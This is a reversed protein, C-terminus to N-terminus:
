PNHLALLTLIQEHAAAFDLKGIADDLAAYPASPMAAVERKLEAHAELARMNHEVLLRELQKLLELIREPNAPYAAAAPRPPDLREALDSLLRNSERLRERLAAILQEIEPRDAKDKIRTEAAAAQESLARAGLTAALGKLTHLERALSAHDQQQMAQDMRALMEQQDNQFRRAMQAYLGRDNGLRALAHATDFGAPLPPLGTDVTISKAANTSGSVKKGCHHLLAAILEAIDFPKGIHDNMGAAMCAERDSPLANATMAIIPTKVHLDKRLIHTAQYGDMGPMQIDMLIADFPRPLTNICNICQEGNNAVQVHAGAHTLLEQAVQQNLPNDEVLLLHLGALPKGDPRRSIEVQEQTVSRGGTAEAIADFLMSPTIPKVLFGDLPMSERELREVIFERGHATIMLIIPAGISEHQLARIRQATEWGDMGPMLWDMCIVDFPDGIKLRDRILELAENGCAATVTRWGFSQTTHALVERATANDDVILVHMRRSLTDPDIGRVVERETALTEADRAFDLIFHFHSGQGLTSEVILEGGMLRILRQSIPLGLGTGGYRRSTSSEAQAFGEFIANLRDAPIGIGTDRISFEIRASDPTAEVLHLGLIVEGHETFKFANGTLNLLVQQLRLPDGRLARPVKPDLEFLIEVQKNHLNTALMVSLNRLLEDLRFATSDLVLKGAEVKSFDLIDNLIALLSQAAAKIKQTYDLQRPNLDTHQLLQLLGLVANMPTRIEHSMNAVFASKARSAAEALEKQEALRATAEREQTMDEIIAILTDGETSHSLLQATVRAWFTRGNKGVFLQERQAAKDTGLHPYLEQGFRQYAAIDTFWKQTSDGCLEGAYYGFLQELKHNCNLVIRNRLLVIGLPAADFIAQLEDSRTALHQELRKRETQDVFTALFSEGFTIGSIQVDLTQGNKATVRYEIPKIDTATSAARAIEGNWTELVQRRYDPDPYALQWWEKLSPADKESYGFLQRFRQNRFSIQGAQEVLCIGVPMDDLIRKLKNESERLTKTLQGAIHQAHKRTNFFAWSTTFLLLTIIGIASMEVWPPELKTSSVFEPLANFRLTWHHGELSLRTVLSFIGNEVPPPAPTDLFYNASDYLLAQPETDDGDFIELRIPGLDNQLIPDLLDNARFPSYVWGVLKQRRQEVTDPLVGNQYVPTYALFGAQIKEHTEQVLTVKGTFAVKGSDRALTMAANRVPESYMDYGFARLNRGAFPELYIISSYEARLSDPQIQYDAFGERRIDQIHKALQEPRLYLSFGVGQIGHYSQDLNLQKVFRHWENRTVEGSAAFLGAGARLIQAYAAMREDIKTALRQSELKFHDQLNRM